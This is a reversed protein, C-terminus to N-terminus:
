AGALLALAVLPVLLAPRRPERRDTRRGMDMRRAGGSGPEGTRGMAPDPGEHSGAGTPRPEPRSPRGPAGRRRGDECWPARAPPPGGTRLDTLVEVVADNFADNRDGAVMHGAGAVDAFRADPVLD